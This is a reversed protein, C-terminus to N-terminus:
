SESKMELCGSPIGLTTFVSFPGTPRSLAMFKHIKGLIETELVSVDYWKPQSRISFKFSYYSVIFVFMPLLFYM